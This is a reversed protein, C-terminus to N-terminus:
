GRPCCCNGPVVLLDIDGPNATLNYTLPPEPIKWKNRTWKEWIVKDASDVNENSEVHTDISLDVKVLEMDCKEFDLGVRPVYIIKKDIDLARKIIPRTQIESLSPMSLFLGISKAAKYEPQQVLKSWVMSSQENLDEESKIATKLKARINKRLAQKQSRITNSSMNISSNISVAPVSSISLVELITVISAYFFVFHRIVVLFTIAIRTLVIFLNSSIKSMVDFSKNQYHQM